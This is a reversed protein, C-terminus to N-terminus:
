YVKVSCYRRIEFVLNLLQDMSKIVTNRNDFRSVATNQLLPICVFKQDQFKMPIKLINQTRSIIVIKKKKKINVNIIIHICIHQIIHVIRVIVGQDHRTKYQYVYTLFNTCVFYSSKSNCVWFVRSIITSTSLFEASVKM